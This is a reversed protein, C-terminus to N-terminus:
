KKHGNKAAINQEILAVAESINDDFELVWSDSKILTKLLNVNDRGAQDLPIVVAFYQENFNSEFNSLVGLKSYRRFHFKYQCM